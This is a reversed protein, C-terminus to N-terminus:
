KGVYNMFWSKDPMKQFMTGEGDITGNKWEGRYLCGKTESLYEGYGHRKGMYFDGEYYNGKAYSMRKNVHGQEEPANKLRVRPILTKMPKMDELAKATHLWKAVDIRTNKLDSKPHKLELRLRTDVPEFSQLFKNMGIEFPM